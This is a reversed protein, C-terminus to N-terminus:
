TQKNQSSSLSCTCTPLPLSLSLSLSLTGLLNWVLLTSGSNPSLGMFRLNIVQPSTLCKVLQASGGLCGKFKAEKLHNALVTTNLLYDM